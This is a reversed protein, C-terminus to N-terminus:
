KIWENYAIIYADVENYGMNIFHLATEVVEYELNYYAAETLITAIDMKIIKKSMKADRPLDRWLEQIDTDDARGSDVYQSIREEIPTEFGEPDIGFNEEFEIKDQKDFWVDIYRFDEILAEGEDSLEKQITQNLVNLNTVGMSTLALSGILAITAPLKFLAPIM